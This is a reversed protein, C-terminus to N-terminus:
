DHRLAANPNLSAAMRAPLYCACYAAMLVPPPVVFLMWPDIVRLDVELYARVIGRGVLGVVLGVTLGELVPRYGDKLVMRQIQTATAGLSMRVGIEKTRHGVLHSQIGGLATRVAVDRHRTTGRALVLNALNTCAVALVLAVLVIITLM